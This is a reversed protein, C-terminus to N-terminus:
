LVFKKVNNKQQNKKPPVSKVLNVLEQIQTRSISGFLLEYSNTLDVEFINSLKKRNHSVQKYHIVIMHIPIGSSVQDFVRLCDAMCINNKSKSVKISVNCKDLRNYEMPIDAKSNYKIQDIENESLNYIKRKIEREFFFGHWQVEKSIKLKKDDNQLLILLEKEPIDYKQSISYIYKKVYSEITKALLMKLNYKYNSFLNLKVM